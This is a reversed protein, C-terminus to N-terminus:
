DEPRAAKGPGPRVARGALRALSRALAGAERLWMPWDRRFDSQPACRDVVDLGALRFLLSARFLHYRETVVIVRAIGREKLLAASCTANELTNRSRTELLLAGAAVGFGLAIDRMIEAEPRAGDGGGSLVLLPAAGARLLSIGAM